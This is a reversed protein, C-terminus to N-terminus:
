DDSKTLKINQKSKPTLKLKEKKQAPPDLAGGGIKPIDLRAERKIREIARGEKKPRGGRTMERMEEPSPIKYNSIKQERLNEVIQRFIQRQETINKANEYRKYLDVLGRITPPDLDKVQADSIGYQDKLERTLPDQRIAERVRAREGKFQSPKINELDITGDQIFQTITESLRFILNSKSPIGGELFNNVLDAIQEAGIESIINNSKARGEQGMIVDGSETITFRNLFSKLENVLNTREGQTKSNKLREMFDNIRDDNKIFYDSISNSVVRISRKLRERREQVAKGRTGEPPREFQIQELIREIADKYIQNKLAEIRVNIEGQQTEPLPLLREQLQRQRQRIPISATETIQETARLQEEDRIGEKSEIEVLEKKIDKLAKVQETEPDPLPEGITIPRVIKYFICCKDDLNSAVRGTPTRIITRITNMPYDKTLTIGYSSAYSFFFSGTTYNKLAVGICNFDQGKGQYSLTDLPLDTYIRYYATNLQSPLNEATMIASEVQINVSFNNNFGLEYKPKGSEKENKAFINLSTVSAIDVNSNTTFPSLSNNRIQKLPNNYTYPSYRNTSFSDDVFSFPSLDYFSLGMKWLISGYFNNVSARIARSDSGEQINTKGKDQFYIDRIFIGSQADCINLNTLVSFNGQITTHKFNLDTDFFKAVEQGVQDSSQNANLLRPTHFNSFTFRNLQNNYNITPNNAGVNIFNVYDRFDGTYVVPDSSYVASGTNDTNALIVANNDNFQPSFIAWLGWPLRFLTENYDKYLEFACCRRQVLGGGDHIAIWIPYCAIDYQQSLTDDYDGLGLPNDWSFVSNSTGDLPTDVNNHTDTYHIRDKPNNNYRTFVEIRHELGGKKLRPCVNRYNDNNDENAQRLWSERLAMSFDGTDAQSDFSDKTRGCDFMTFFNTTDTEIEENTEFDGSYTETRHLFDQIIKLNDETYEINTPIIQSKIMKMNNGNRPCYGEYSGDTKKTWWYYVPHICTFEGVGAPVANPSKYAPIDVGLDFTRTNSQIRSGYLWKYPNAVAISGYLFDNTTGTPRMTNCPVNVMCAGNLRAQKIEVGGSATPNNLGGVDHYLLVDKPETNHFALTFEDAIRNPDQFGANFRVPINNLVFEVMPNTAKNGNGVNSVREWGKYNEKIIAYKSSDFNNLKNRCKFETPNKIANSANKGGQGSVWSTSVYMGYHLNTQTNTPSNSFATEDYSPQYTGGSTAGELPLGVSNVGINNIYPVVEFLAFNDTYGQGEVNDGTIEITDTSAGRANIIANELFIMDGKKLNIDNFQNVWDAKNKLDNKNNNIGYSMCKMSNQRDCELLFTKTAQNSM